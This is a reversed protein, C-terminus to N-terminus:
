SKLLDIKCKHIHIPHLKYVIKRKAEPYNIVGEDLKNTAKWLNLRIFLERIAPMQRAENSSYSQNTYNNNKIQFGYNCIELRVKVKDIFDQKEQQSIM